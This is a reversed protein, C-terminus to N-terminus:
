RGAGSAREGARASARCRVSGCAAARPRWRGESVDRLGAGSDGRRAVREGRTRAAFRARVAGRRAHPATGVAVWHVGPAEIVELVGAQRDGALPALTDARDVGKGEWM